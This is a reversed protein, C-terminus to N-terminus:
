RMQLAIDVLLTSTIRERIWDELMSDNLHHITRLDDCQTLECWATLSSLHSTEVWSCLEHTAWEAAQSRHLRNVNHPTQNVNSTRTRMRKSYRTSIILHSLYAHSCEVISIKLCTRISLPHSNSGGVLLSRETTPEWRLSGDIVREFLRTILNWWMVSAIYSYLALRIAEELRFLRLSVRKKKLNGEM